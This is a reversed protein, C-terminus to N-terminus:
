LSYTFFGSALVLLGLSQHSVSSFPLFVMTRTKAKKTEDEDLELLRVNRSYADVVFIHPVISLATNRKQGTYIISLSRKHVHQCPAVEALDCMENPVRSEVRPRRPHVHIVWDVVKAQVLTMSYGIERYRLAVVMDSFHM